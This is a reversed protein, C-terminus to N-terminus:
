FRMGSGKFGMARLILDMSGVVSCQRCLAAPCLVGVCELRM